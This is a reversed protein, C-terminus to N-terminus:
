NLGANLKSTPTTSGGGSPVDFPATHDLSVALTPVRNATDTWSGSALCTQSLGGFATAAKNAATDEFQMGQISLYNSSDGGSAVGATLRVVTGPAVTQVSDFCLPKYGDFLINAAPMVATTATPTTSTGTYLRYRLGGAPVTGAWGARMGVCRINIGPWDAPVTFKAGAEQSGYIRCGATTDPGWNNTTNLGYFSGDSMEFRMVISSASAAAWTSGSDSSDGFAWGWRQDSSHVQALGPKGESSQGAFRVGIYNSGPSANSNRLCLWYRTGATLATSFADSEMYAGSNPTASTNEEEIDSGPFGASDARLTWKIESASPTGTKGSVWMKAHKLTKGSDEIIFSQCARKTSSNLNVLETGGFGSHPFWGLTVPQLPQAAVISPLLLALFVLFRM